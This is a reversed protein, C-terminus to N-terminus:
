NGILTPVGNRNENEYGFEAKLAVPSGFAVNPSDDNRMGPANFTYEGLRTPDMVTVGGALEL